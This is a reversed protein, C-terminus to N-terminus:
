GVASDSGNTEPIDRMWFCLAKDLAWILVWSVKSFVHCCKVVFEVPNLTEGVLQFTPEDFPCSFLSTQSTTQLESSGPLTAIAGICQPQVAPGLKIAGHTPFVAPALQSIWTAGGSAPLLAAVFGLKGDLSRVQFVWHAMCAPIAANYQGGTPSIHFLM